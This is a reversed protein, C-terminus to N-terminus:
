KREALTTFRCTWKKDCAVSLKTLGNVGKEEFYALANAPLKEPM